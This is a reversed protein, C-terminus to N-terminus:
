ATAEQAIIQNKLIANEKKLAENEESLTENQKAIKDNLKGLNEIVRNLAEIANYEYHPNYETKDENVISENEDCSENLMDGYGTLLWTSKIGLICEWKKAQKKGFPKGNLQSWVASQSVGLMDALGEQTIGKRKFYEKIKNSIEIPQLEPM